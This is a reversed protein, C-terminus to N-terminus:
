VNQAGGGFLLLHQFLDPDPRDLFQEGVDRRGQTQLPGEVHRGGEALHLQRPVDLLQGTAVAGGVVRDTEQAAATVVVEDGGHHVGDGAAALEVGGVRGVLGLRTLAAQLREK